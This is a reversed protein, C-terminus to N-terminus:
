REALGRRLLEAALLEGALRNGRSNWHTDRPKYLRHAGRGARDRFGPLLDFAAIRRAGLERALCRQPRDVDLAIPPEFLRGLLRPDVQAQDPIVMVLFRGGRAEVDRAMREVVQVAERCLRAFTEEDPGAIARMRRAEIARFRRGSMSPRDPDYTEAYGPVEFGGRRPAAAGPAGARPAPEVEAPGPELGPEALRQAREERLRRANRVLRWTYSAQAAAGAMGPELPTGSEDLFDNGVFFALVVLDPELRRGELEWLRLEFRPGVAPYGLSITEVPRELRRELERGAVQHWMQPFPVGSSAFTFSDGLVVVRLTGPAKREAYEPSRFGRSNLIFGPTAGLPQHGFPGRALLEATTAADDFETRVTPLYLLAALRSSRAAGLRLGAEAAVLALAVGALPVLLRAARM